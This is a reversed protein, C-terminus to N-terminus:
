GAPKVATEATEPEEGKNEQALEIQDESVTGEPGGGSIAADDLHEESPNTMQLTYGPTSSRHRIRVDSGM